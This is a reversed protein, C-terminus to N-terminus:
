DGDQQQNQSRSRRSDVFLNGVRWVPVGAFGRSGTFDISATTEIIAGFYTATSTKFRFPFFAAM